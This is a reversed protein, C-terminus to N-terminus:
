PASNGSRCNFEATPELLPRLGRSWRELAQAIRSAAMGDGYPNGARAADEPLAADLIRSAEQVIANRTTGIVKSLGGQFAEPRETVTRMVLLPKGLTPAEEQLGGSDTLILHSRKMLNIFATYNLPSILHIRNISSLVRKAARQVEPNLHVPYVIHVDPFARVIDTLALFINEMGAGWSERRHCTVLIVRKNRFDFSELETGAFAFPKELVHLLADVVTNGTVAIKDAPIGEQLLRTRSLATPACNIEALVTTLRRNAEEPFPNGLDFSRLGAEVHTVPIRRYFAALATAFVTTTDGQVLVMDPRVVGLTADMRDLVRVSLDSLSQGPSMLDLDHDPVIGFLSLAQDLMERHQATAVVVVEFVDTRERLRHIVPAMKIV